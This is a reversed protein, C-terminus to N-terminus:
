VFEIFDGYIEILKQKEQDELIPTAIFLLQKARSCGVYFVRTSENASEINPSLLDKKDELYLFVSQFEAGKVGHITRYNDKKVESLKVTNILLDVKTQVAFDKIPNRVMKSLHLSKNKMFDCLKNYFDQLLINNDNKLQTLLFELINVALGKVHSKEFYSNNFPAILKGNKRVILANEIENIALDFFGELYYRYGKFVKLLFTCRDGDLEKFDGWIDNIELSTKMLSVHENKFAIISFDNGLNLETRKAEFSDIIPKVLSGDAYQYIYVYNDLSNMVCEQQIM